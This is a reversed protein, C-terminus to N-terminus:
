AGQGALKQKISQFAQRFTGDRVQAVIREEDAPDVGFEAWWEVFTRGDETVPRLHYGAVYDTVPMPSDLIAYVCSHDRDSLSLLRERLHDGNGLHFSRVCGVADSPLGGEIESDRIFPHYAPMGNFDRIIGWVKEIPADIVDSVYIRVM